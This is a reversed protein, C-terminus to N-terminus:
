TVANMPKRAEIYMSEDGKRPQFKKDVDLPYFPFDVVTSTTASLRQVDSFGATELQVQIQHFDWLWQHREGVSALSVNQTRFATPLLFLCFKIWFRQMYNPLSLILGLLKEIGYRSKSLDRQHFNEGTRYFIYDMMKVNYKSSLQRYLKGLDGGSVQRVCQDIMEIVVFDAKDHQGSERMTLYERAMNELDPVVLRLVGGPKLVRLCEVLLTPVLSRPVHELFHSSYVLAASETPLPLRDLLNAKRVAKSVPAFDLNIWDESDLFIPGCGINIHKFKM